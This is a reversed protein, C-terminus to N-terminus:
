GMLHALIAVGALGIILIKLKAAERPNPEVRNVAAYLATALLCIIFNYLSLILM